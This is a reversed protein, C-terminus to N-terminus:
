KASGIVNQVSPDEITKGTQTLRVQITEDNM